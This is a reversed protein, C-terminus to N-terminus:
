YQKTILKILLKTQITLKKNEEELINIHKNVEELLLYTSSLPNGNQTKNIKKKLDEITEAKSEEIKLAMKESDYINGDVCEYFIGNENKHIKM